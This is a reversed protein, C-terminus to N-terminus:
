VIPFICILLSFPIHFLVKHLFYHGFCFMGDIQALKGQMDPSGSFHAASLLFHMLFGLKEEGAKVHGVSPWVGLAVM